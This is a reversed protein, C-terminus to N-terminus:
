VVPWLVAEADAVSRVVGARAGFDRLVNAWNAQEPRVRGTATKCEMSVFIGVTQGVMDPTITVRQIGILDGSGVCLGAHLPRANRIFVSGDPRRSVDGTWGTGVNQRWLRCDPRSGIALHIASQISRETSNTSSPPM